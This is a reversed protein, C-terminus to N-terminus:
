RERWLPVCLSPCVWVGEPCVSVSPGARLVGQVGVGAPCPIGGVSGGLGVLAVLGCETGASVRGLCVRPVERECLGQVFWTRTCCMFEGHGRRVCREALGGGRARRCVGCVEQACVWRLSVGVGGSYSVRRM